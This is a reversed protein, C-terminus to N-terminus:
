QACTCPSKSMVERRGNHRCPAQMYGDGARQLGYRPPRLSEASRSHTPALCSEQESVLLYFAAETRTDSRDRCVLACGSEELVNLENIPSPSTADPCPM